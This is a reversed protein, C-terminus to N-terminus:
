STFNRSFNYHISCRLKVSGIRKVVLIRSISGDLRIRPDTRVDLLKLGRRDFNRSITGHNERDFGADIVVSDVVISQPDLCLSITALVAIVGIDSHNPIYYLSISSCAFVYISLVLSLFIFLMSWLVSHFAVFLM